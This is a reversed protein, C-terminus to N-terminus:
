LVGGFLLGRSEHDSVQCKLCQNCTQCNLVVINVNHGKFLSHHPCCGCNKCHKKIWSQRHQPLLSNWKSIKSFLFYYWNPSISKLCNCTGGERKSKWGDSCRGAATLIALVTQVFYKKSTWLISKLLNCLIRKKFIACFLVKLWTFLSGKLM